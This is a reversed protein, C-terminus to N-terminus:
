SFMCFSLSSLPLAVVGPLSQVLFLSYLLSLPRGSRLLSALRVQWTVGECSTLPSPSSSARACYVFAVRLLSLLYAFVLSRRLGSSLTPAATSALSSSSPFAEAGAGSSSLTSAAVASSALTSSGSFAGAGAGSSLLISASSSLTCAASSSSTLSSNAQLHDRPPSRM